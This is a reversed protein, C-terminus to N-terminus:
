LWMTKPDENKAAAEQLKKNETKLQIMESTTEKLRTALVEAFLRFLTYRFAMENNTPSTGLQSCDVGLVLCKTKAWVTATRPSGDIVGIEGFLEGSRRLIALTKDGSVIKAEGSVLFYAWTDIDGKRVIEEGQEYEKFKGIKLFSQLNEESFQQFRDIKKLIALAKISQTLYDTEKM